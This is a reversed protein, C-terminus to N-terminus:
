WGIFPCMLEGDADTESFTDSHEIIQIEIVNQGGEMSASLRDVDVNEPHDIRILFYTRQKSM